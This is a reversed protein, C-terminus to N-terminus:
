VKPTDSSQCLLALLRPSFEVEYPVAQLQEPAVTLGQGAALAALWEWPHEAGDDDDDPLVTTLVDALLTEISLHDVWCADDDGGVLTSSFGRESHLVLRSGGATELFESVIYSSTLGTLVVPEALDCYAGLRVVAPNVPSPM